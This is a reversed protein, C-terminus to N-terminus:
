SERSGQANRFRADVDEIRKLRIDIQGRLQNIYGHLFFTVVTAIVAWLALVALIIDKM